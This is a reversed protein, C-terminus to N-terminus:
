AGLNVGCTEYPPPIRIQPLAARDRGHSLKGELSHLPMHPEWKTTLDAHTIDCLRNFSHNVYEWRKTQNLLPVNRSKLKVRSVSLCVGSLCFRNSLGAERM